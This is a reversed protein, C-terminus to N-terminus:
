EMKRSASRMSLNDYHQDAEDVPRKRSPAKSMDEVGQLGMTTKESTISSKTGSKSKSAKSKKTKSAKSKKTKSAKSKKTKSAKSKKSSKKGDNSNSANTSIGNSPGSPASLVKRVLETRKVHKYALFVCLGILSLYVIFIIVIILVLLVFAADTKASAEPKLTTAVLISTVKSTEGLNIDADVTIYDSDENRAEETNRKGRHSVASGDVGCPEQFNRAEALHLIGVLVLSSLIFVITSRLVSIKM